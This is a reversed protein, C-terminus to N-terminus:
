GFWYAGFRRELLHLWWFILILVHATTPESTRACTVLYM